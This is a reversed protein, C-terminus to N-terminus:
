PPNIVGAMGLSCHMHETCYYWIPDTDNITVTFVEGSTPIIFGSYFGGTSPSCPSSFSSQAVDHKGPFYHFTVTDGIAATTINPTFSLGQAGVQVDHTAALATSLLGCSAFLAFM